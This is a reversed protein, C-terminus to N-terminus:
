TMSKWTLKRCVMGLKTTRIDIKEREAICGDERDNERQTSQEQARAELVFRLDADLLLAYIIDRREMLLGCFGYTWAEKIASRQSSPLRRRSAPVSAYSAAIKNVQQIRLKEKL